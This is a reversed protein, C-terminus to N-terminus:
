LISQGAKVVLSLNVIKANKLYCCKGIFLARGGVTKRSHTQARYTIIYGTFKIKNYIVWDSHLPSFPKASPLQAIPNPIQQIKLELEQLSVIVLFRVYILYIIVFVMRQPIWSECELKAPVGSIGPLVRCGPVTLPLYRLQALINTLDSKVKLSHHDRIWITPNFWDFSYFFIEKM